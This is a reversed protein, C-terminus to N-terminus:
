STISIIHNDIYLGLNTIDQETRQVAMSLLHIFMLAAFNVLFVTRFQANKQPAMQHRLFFQLIPECSCERLWLTIRSFKSGTHSSAYFCTRESGNKSQRCSTQGKSNASYLSTRFFNQIPACLTRFGLGSCHFKILTNISNIRLPTCLSKQQNKTKECNYIAIKCFNHCWRAIFILVIQGM